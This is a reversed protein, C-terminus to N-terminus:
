SESPVSDGEGAPRGWSRIVRGIFAEHRGLRVDAAVADEVRGPRGIVYSVRRVGFGLPWTARYARIVTRHPDALLTFPLHHEAKFAAHSEVSQPSIGALAIGAALLASHHDRFLCAQQTCVKTFDAPYFYLVAPGNAVLSALTVAHGADDPLTFNPARDGIRLM